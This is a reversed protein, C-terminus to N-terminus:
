LVGGPIELSVSQLCRYDVKTYIMTSGICKHGLCDAISKLPVGEKLARTAFGHRYCHAGRLTELQIQRLYRSSIESLTSSRPLPHFPARCTLFLEPYPEHPRSHQLYELVADGVEDILPMVVSKGCKLIPFQIIGSRWDIDTINLARLQGGRIGYHYLMQIIAYDRKGVPTTRDILNFVAKAADGELARPLQSLRYTHLTPIAVSLDQQTIKKLYCFTLFTRLTAQM